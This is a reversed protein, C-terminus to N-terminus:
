GTGCTQEARSEGVGWGLWLALFLLGLRSLSMRKNGGAYAVVRSVSGDQPGPVNRLTPRLRLRQDLGVGVGSSSNPLRAGHGALPPAPRSPSKKERWLCSRPQKDHREM